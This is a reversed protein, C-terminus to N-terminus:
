RADGREQLYDLYDEAALRAEVIKKFDNFNLGKKRGEAEETLFWQERRKFVILEDLVRAQRDLIIQQDKTTQM